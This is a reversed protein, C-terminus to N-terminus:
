GFRKSLRFQVGLVDNQSREIVRQLKIDFNQSNGSSVFTQNVGAIQQFYASSCAWCTTRRASSSASCSSISTRRM